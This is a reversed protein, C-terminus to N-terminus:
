ILADPLSAGDRGRNSAPVLDANRQILDYATLGNPSREARDAGAAILLEISVISDQLARRNNGLTEETRSDLLIRYSICQNVLGQTYRYLYTYAVEGDRANPDAGHELLFAVVESSSAAGLPPGYSEEDIFNIDYGHDILLQLGAISRRGALEEAAYGSTPFRQYMDIGHDLLVRLVELQVAENEAGINGVAEQIAITSGLVVDIDDPYRDLYADVAQADGNRVYFFYDAANLAKEGEAQEIPPTASSQSNRDCGVLGTGM